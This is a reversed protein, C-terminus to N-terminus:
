LSTKAGVAGFETKTCYKTQNGTRFVVIAETSALEEQRGAAAELISRDLAERILTFLSEERDATSVLESKAAQDCILLTKLTVSSTGQIHVGFFEHWVYSKASQSWWLIGTIDVSSLPTVISM